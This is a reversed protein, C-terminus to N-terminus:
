GVIFGLYYIEPLTSLVAFQVAALAASGDADYYPAGNSQDYLIRNDSNQASIDAYFFSDSSPSGTFGLERFISPMLQIMDTGSSLGCAKKGLLVSVPKGVTYRETHAVCSARISNIESPM